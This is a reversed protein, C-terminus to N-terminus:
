SRREDIQALVHDWTMPTAGGVALDAARRETEISWLLDVEGGDIEEADLSALLGSALQVRDELPLMMAQELLSEAANTV